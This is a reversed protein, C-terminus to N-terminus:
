IGALIVDSINLRHLQITNRLFFIRVYMYVAMYIHMILQRVCTAEQELTKNAECTIGLLM